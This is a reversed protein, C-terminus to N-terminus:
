LLRILEIISIGFKWMKKNQTKVFLLKEYFGVSPGDSMTWVVCSKCGVQKKKELLYNVLLSGAGSRQFDPDVYLANIEFCEQQSTSVFAFAIVKGQEEIVYGEGSKLFNRVKKLADENISLNDLFDDPLYGRYSIKYARSHVEEIALVDELKAQRILM